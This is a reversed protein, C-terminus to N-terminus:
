KAINASVQFVTAIVQVVEVACSSPTFFDHEIVDIGLKPVVERSSSDSVDLAASIPFTEKLENHKRLTPVKKWFCCILRMHFFCTLDSSM